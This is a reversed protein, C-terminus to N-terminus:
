ALVVNADVRWGGQETTSPSVTLRMSAERATDQGYNTRVFQNTYFLVCRGDAQRYGSDFTYTRMETDGHCMYWADFEEAYKGPPDGASALISDTEGASLGFKKEMYAAIYQRSLRSKDLDLWEGAEAWKQFLKEEAKSFDTEGLDYFIWTLYPTLNESLGKYRNPDMEFRLLGNNERANFYDELNGLEAATLATEGEPAPIGLEGALRFALGAEGPALGALWFFTKDTVESGDHCVAATLREGDCVWGDQQLWGRGTVAATDEDKAVEYWVPAAFLDIYGEGMGTYSGIWTLDERRYQGTLAKKMEEPWALMHQRVAQDAGEEVLYGSKDLFLATHGEDNQWDPEVAVPYLKAFPTEEGLTFSRAVATMLKDSQAWDKRQARCSVQWGGEASGTYFRRALGPGEEGEEPVLSMFAGFYGGGPSVLVQPGGREQGQTFVGSGDVTERQWTEPVLISWGEGNYRVAPIEENGVTLTLGKEEPERDPEVQQGPGRPETSEEPEKWPQWVALVVALVALAGLGSFLWIKAKKSLKKVSIREKRRVRNKLPWPLLKKKLYLTGHWQM